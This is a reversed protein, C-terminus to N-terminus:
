GQTRDVVERLARQLQAFDVPKTLHTAFGAKRARTVDDQMGYGSLAIGRLSYRARLIEMLENGTGDPLGLDSIVVDFSGKSAAALAGTLTGATVVHHGARTLLRSLVQLTSEHDEVLLLRLPPQVKRPAETLPGGAGSPLAFLAPRNAAAPPAETAGPLHIAFTAGRNRGASEATITGGHLNVIARVIALGLGMGGFRHDGPPDVQEFPIFIKERAGPDIGIGTDTVEIRLSRTGQEGPENRTRVAVQGGRPTFKVANRLLNWIVQQFRTPDAVLGSQEARLQQEVAIGKAEADGRVIEVALGILTHTDCMESRLHLQGRAIRTLDLLDDILRAELAINREMMALQERVDPPLREDARLAAATMLVPTLPTRLEHSLAALFTDKARSAREAETRANEELSKSRQESDRLTEEAVGIATIDRAIVAVIGGGLRAVNIELAATAGDGIALNRKVRQTAEGDFANRALQAFPAFSEGADVEDLSRGLMQDPALGFLRAAVENWVTVQRQADFCIVADFTHDLIAPLYEM